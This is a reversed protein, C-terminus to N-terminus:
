PLVKVEFFHFGFDIDSFSSALSSSSASSPLFSCHLLAPRAATINAANVSLSSRIRSGFPLTCSASPVQTRISKRTLWPLSTILSMSAM